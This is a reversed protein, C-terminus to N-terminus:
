VYFPRRPLTSLKSVAGTAPTKPEAPTFGRSKIKQTPAAKAGIHGRKQRDAKRIRPVDEKATKAGHCATCLVQVNALVGKGGLACPLIHDYHIHGSLLAAKCVECKGGARAFGQEKIKPKFEDRDAM